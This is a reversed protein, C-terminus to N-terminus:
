FMMEEEGGGEFNQPRQRQKKQNFRYTFSLNFSRQRWRYESYSNYTDTFTNSQRKNTNFLDSVRASLSGNGKFVDKSLAMNTFLM